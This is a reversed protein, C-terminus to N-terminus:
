RKEKEKETADRAKKAKKEAQLLKKEDSKRTPEKIADEKDEFQETLIFALEECLKRDFSIFFFYLM